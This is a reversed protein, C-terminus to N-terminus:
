PLVSVIVRRYRTLKPQGSDTVALVIHITEPRTVKPATFSAEAQRANDIALAVVARSNSLPASSPEGYYFWEYSLTNGDPDSSGAASLAVREGAKASLRAAHKLQAVPPHNAEAFAKITWDMGRRDGLDPWQHDGSFRGVSSASLVHTETSNLEMMTLLTKLWSFCFWTIARPRNPQGNLRM